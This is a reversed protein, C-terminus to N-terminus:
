TILFSGSHGIVADTGSPTATAFALLWLYKGPAYDGTARIRVNLSREDRNSVLTGGPSSMTRVIDSDVDAFASGALAQYHALSAFTTPVASTTTTGLGIASWSSYDADTPSVLRAGVDIPAGAGVQNAGLTAQLTM